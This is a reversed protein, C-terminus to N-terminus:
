PTLILKNVSTNPDDYKDVVFDQNCSKVGLFTVLDLFSKFQASANIDPGIEAFQTENFPSFSKNKGFEHEYQLVRLKELVNGMLTVSVDLHKSLTAVKRGGDM